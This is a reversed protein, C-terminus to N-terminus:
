RSVPPVAAPVARNPWPRPWVRALISTRAPSPDSPRGESPEFVYQVGSGGTQRPTFEQEDRGGSLEHAVVRLVRGLMRMPRATGQAAEHVPVAGSAGPLAEAEREDQDARERDHDTADDGHESETAAAVAGREAGAVV